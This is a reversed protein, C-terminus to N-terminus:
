ATAAIRAALDGGEHRLKLDYYVALFLAYSLPMAVASLLPSIVWQLYWPPQGAALAAPDAFASVAAAIAVVTYLVMLIIAIITILATTRWWHGRTAARSYRLSTLPGLRDIIAAYPGFFLWVAIVSGPFVFFLSAAARFADPSSVGAVALAILVVCPVASVALSLLIGSGFAAPARRAGIGLAEGVSVPRGRAVGDIRVVIAGTLLLTVIVIGAIVLLVPGIVGASPANPDLYPAFYSAPAMALSTVAALLFVQTFCERFLKFGSDLVGGISQPANPAQYM